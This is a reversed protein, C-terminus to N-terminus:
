FEIRWKNKGREKNEIYIIGCMGLFTLMNGEPARMELFTTKLFKLASIFNTPYIQVLIKSERKLKGVELFFGLIMECLEWAAPDCM